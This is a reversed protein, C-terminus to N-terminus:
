RQHVAIQAELSSPQHQSQPPPSPEALVFVTQGNIQQATYQLAGQVIMQGESTVSLQNGSTAYLEMSKPDSSTTYIVTKGGEEYILDIPQQKDGADSGSAEYIPLKAGGDDVAEVYTKDGHTYIIHGREKGELSGIEPPGSAASAASTVASTYIHAPQPQADKSSADTYQVVSTTIHSPLSTAQNYVIETVTAAAGNQHDIESPQQAQSQQAQASLGSESAAAYIASESEANLKHDPGVIRTIIHDGNENRTLIHHEGNIIERSIIQQSEGNPGILRLIQDDCFPIKSFIQEYTGNAVVTSQAQSEDSVICGEVADLGARHLAAGCGPQKGNAAKATESGGTHLDLVIVNTMTALEPRPSSTVQYNIPSVDAAPM